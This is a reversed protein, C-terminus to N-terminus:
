EKEFNLLNIYLNVGVILLSTDKIHKIKTM